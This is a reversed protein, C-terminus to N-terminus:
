LHLGSQGIGEQSLMSELVSIDTEIDLTEASYLGDLQHAFADAVTDLTKEIGAMARTVNEGKVRQEEMRDYADLIKLTTPLYYSTFKRLDGAQEPHQSVYEFISRSLEGIRDVKESVEPNEIAKSAAKLKELYEQKEIGLDTKGGYAPEPPAEVLVTRAPVLKKAAFFVAASLVAAILYHVPRYLPILLAYLLWFVGVLWFPLASPVKKEILNPSNKEQM